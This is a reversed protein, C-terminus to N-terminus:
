QEKKLPQIDTSKGRSLLISNIYVVSIIALWYLVFPVGLPRLNM